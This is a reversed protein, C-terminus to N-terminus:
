ENWHRCRRFDTEDPLRVESGSEHRLGLFVFFWRTRDDRSISQERNSQRAVDHNTSYDGTSAACDYGRRGFSLIGQTVYTEHRKSSIIVINVKDNGYSDM